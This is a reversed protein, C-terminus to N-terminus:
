EMNCKIVSCKRGYLIKLIAYSVILYSKKVFNDTARIRLVYKRLVAGKFDYEKLPKYIYKMFLQYRAKDIRTSKVKRIFRNRSYRQGMASDAHQRYRVTIYDLYDLKFGNQTAKIWMPYDEMDRITEDYGGLDLFAQRNVFLTCGYFPISKTILYKYQDNPSSNFFKKQDKLLKSLNHELCLKKDGFVEVNSFFFKSNHNIANVLNKEICDEILIDDGAIGKVWEGQAVYYGSNENASVGKNESHKILLTKIFRDSHTSLWQNCIQVTDDKSADDCIILEINPYTQHYVSELTELVYKSSNYTVVVVSVLIGSDM